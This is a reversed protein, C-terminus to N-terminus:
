EASMVSHPRPDPFAKEDFFIRGIERLVLEINVLLMLSFCVSMALYIWALKFQLNTGFTQNIGSDQLLRNLGSANFLFGSNFHNWANKLLFWLVATALTMLILNLINSWPRPLADKFMDISVFGGWRYATPGILAMMWIMLSRAAEETWSFADLWPIYRYVVQLVIIAVMAVLLVWAINRSVTLLASNVAGLVRVLNSLATM